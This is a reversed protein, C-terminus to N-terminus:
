KIPVVRAGSQEVFKVYIDDIYSDGPYLDREVTEQALIGPFFIIIREMHTKESRSFVRVMYFIIYILETDYCNPIM